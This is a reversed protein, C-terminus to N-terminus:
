VEGKTVIEPGREGVLVTETKKSKVPELHGARVLAVTKPDDEDLEVIKGPAVGAVSHNGVVKFRM